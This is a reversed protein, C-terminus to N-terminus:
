PDVESSRIASPIQSGNKIGQLANSLHLDTTDKPTWPRTVKNNNKKDRSSTEQSVYPMCCFNVPELCCIPFMFMDCNWVGVCLPACGGTSGLM